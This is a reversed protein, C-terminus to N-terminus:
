ENKSPQASDQNFGGGFQGRGRGFGRGPGRGGVKPRNCDRAFHGEHGCNFCGTGSTPCQDNWHPGGCLRCPNDPREPRRPCAGLGHAGHCVPCGGRWEPKIYPPAPLARAGSEVKVQSNALQTIAAAMQNMQTSAASPAAAPIPMLANVEATQDYFVENVAAFKARPRNPSSVETVVKILGKVIDKLERVEGRVGGEEDKVRRKKDSSASRSKKSPSPKDESDDSGDEDDDDEEAGAGNKQSDDSDYGNSHCYARILTQLQAVSAPAMRQLPVRMKKPLAALYYRVAVHESPAAGGHNCAERKLAFREAFASFSESDKKRLNVLGDLARGEFDPGRMEAVFAAGRTPMDEVLGMAQRNEMWRLAAGETRAIAIRQMEDDDLGFQPQCSIVKDVWRRPDGSKKSSSYVSIFGLASNYNIRSSQARFAANTLAHNAM